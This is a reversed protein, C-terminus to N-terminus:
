EDPGAARNKAFLVVVIVLAIIVVVLPVLEFVLV